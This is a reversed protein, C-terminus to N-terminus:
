ILTLRSFIDDILSRFKHYSRRCGFTELLNSFDRQRAGVRSVKPPKTNQLICSIPLRTLLKKKLCTGLQHGSQKGIVLILDNSTIFNNRLFILFLKNQSILVIFFKGWQDDLKRLTRNIQSV